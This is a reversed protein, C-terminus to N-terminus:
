GAFLDIFRLPPADAANVAAQAAVAKSAPGCVAAPRLRVGPTDLEALLATHAAAAAESAQAVPRRDELAATAADTLPLLRSQRQKPAHALPGTVAAPDPRSAAAAADSPPIHSVAPRIVATKSLWGLEELLLKIRKTKQPPAELWGGAVVEM